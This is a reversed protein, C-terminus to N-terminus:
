STHEHSSLKRRNIEAQDDQSSRQVQRSSRSQHQERQPSGNSPDRVRHFLVRPVRQNAWARRVRSWRGDARLGSGQASLGSGQRANSINIESDLNVATQDPKMFSTPIPAMAAEVSFLVGVPKSSMMTASVSKLSTSPSRPWSM